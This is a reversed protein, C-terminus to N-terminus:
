ADDLVLDSWAEPTDFNVLHAHLKPHTLAKM